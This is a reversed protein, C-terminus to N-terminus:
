LQFLSIVSSLIFVLFGMVFARFNSLVFFRLPIQSVRKKRREEMM